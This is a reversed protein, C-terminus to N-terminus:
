AKKSKILELEDNYAKLAQRVTKIFPQDIGREISSRYENLTEILNLWHSTESDEFADIQDIAIHASCKALAIVDTITHM